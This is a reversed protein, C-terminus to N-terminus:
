RTKSSLTQHELRALWQQKHPVVWPLRTLWSLLNKKNTKTVKWEKWHIKKYRRNPNYCPQVSLHLDILEWHATIPAQGLAWIQSVILNIDRTSIPSLLLTCLTLHTVKQKMRQGYINGKTLNHRFTMWSRVQLLMSLMQMSNFRPSHDSIVSDM